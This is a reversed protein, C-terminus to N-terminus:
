FSRNNVSHIQNHKLLLEKMAGHCKSTMHNHSASIEIVEDHLSAPASTM